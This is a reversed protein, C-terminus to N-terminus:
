LASKWRVECETKAKSYLVEGYKNVSDMDQKEYLIGIYESIEEELSWLTFDASFKDILGSIYLKTVTEKALLVAYLESIIQSNTSCFAPDINEM